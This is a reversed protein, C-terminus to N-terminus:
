QVSKRPKKYVYSGSFLDLLTRRDSKFARLSGGTWLLFASLGILSLSNPDPDMTNQFAVSLWFVTPCIHRKVLQFLNLQTRQKNAIYIRLLREAFTQHFLAQALPRYFAFSVFFMFDLWTVPKGNSLTKGTLGFWTNLTEEGFIPEIILVAPVIFIIAVIIWDFIVCIVRQFWNARPTNEEITYEKREMLSVFTAGVSEKQKLPSSM